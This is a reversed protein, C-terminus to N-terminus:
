QLNNKLALIKKEISETTEWIEVPFIPIEPHRKKHHEIWRKGTVSFPCIEYSGANVFVVSFDIGEILNAYSLNGAPEFGHIERKEQLSQLAELVKQERINGIIIQIEPQQLMKKEIRQRAKTLIREKKIEKAFLKEIIARKNLRQKRTRRKLRPM